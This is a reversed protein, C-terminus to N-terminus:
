SFDWVDSRSSPMRGLKSSMKVCAAYLGMVEVPGGNISVGHSRCRSGAQLLVAEVRQGHYEIVIRGIQTGHAICPPGSRPSAEREADRRARQAISRRNTPASRM